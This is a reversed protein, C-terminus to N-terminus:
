RLLDTNDNIFKNIKDLTRKKIMRLNDSTTQYKEILEQLVVDPLHKNGDLYLFYTMLIEREKDTLSNLADYIVKKEPTEVEIEDEVDVNSITRAEELPVFVKEGIRKEKLIGLLDYMENKAIRSIWTKIKGKSPNYTHASYYICARTQMFVDKALEEGGYVGNRCVNCCLSWIFQQYKKDFEKFAQKAELENEKQFSMLVLLDEDSYSSEEREKEVQLEGM